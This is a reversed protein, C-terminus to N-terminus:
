GLEVWFYYGTADTTSKNQPVIIQFDYTTENDYGTISDELISVFVTNAGDFAVIEYFDRSNFAATQQTDNVYMTTTKCSSLNNLGTLFSPHATENFTRNINDTDSSSFGLLGEEFTVNAPQSCNLSTFTVGSSRSAYIEGTLTVLEWSYITKNNADDLVLQSTINGAYGKWNINQQIVNVVMTTITGGDDSRSDPNIGARSGTVNGSITTGSPGVALAVAFSLILLLGFILVLKVNRDM